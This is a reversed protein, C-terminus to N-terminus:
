SSSPIHPMVEETVWRRFKKAVPKHSDFISKWLGSENFLTMERKEIFGTSKAVEVKHTHVEFGELRRVIRGGDRYGLMGAVDM